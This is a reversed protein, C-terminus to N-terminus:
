ATQAQMFGMTALSAPHTVPQELPKCIYFGQVLPIGMKCITELERRNEIGEAIVICGLKEALEQMSQVFYQKEEHLHIQQIFHRDLKVYEPKLESWLQLSSYASGLDDLAIKFGAKRYRDLVSCLKGIDEIPCHETIEIVVQEPQMDQLQMFALLDSMVQRNSVLSHPSFNLFLQEVLERQKFRIVALQSTLQDLRSLYGQNEAKAFLDNAEYLLSGEPGRALAEYGCVVGNEVSVIPQFLTGVRKQNVIDPLSINININNNINNNVMPLIGL